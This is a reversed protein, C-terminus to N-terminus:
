DVLIHIPQSGVKQTIRMTQFSNVGQLAQLSILPQEEDLLLSPMGEGLVEEQDEIGEGEEMIELKYVQGNCKYGPYYKEDCFFCM